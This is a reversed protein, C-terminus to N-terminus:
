ESETWPELEPFTMNYNENKRKKAKQVGGEGM